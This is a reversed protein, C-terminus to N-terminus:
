DKIRFLQSKEVDNENKCKPCIWVKESKKVSNLCNPCVAIDCICYNLQDVNNEYNKECIFCHPPHKKSM